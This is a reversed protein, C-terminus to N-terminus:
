SIESAKYEQLYQSLMNNFKHLNKANLKNKQKNSKSDVEDDEDSSEPEIIEVDPEGHRGVPRMKVHKDQSVASATDKDSQQQMKAYMQSINHYDMSASDPNIKPKFTFEKYHDKLNTLM